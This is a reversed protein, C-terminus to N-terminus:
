HEAWLIISYFVWDEKKKEWSYKADSALTMWTSEKTWTKLNNMASLLTMTNDGVIQHYMLFHSSKIDSPQM